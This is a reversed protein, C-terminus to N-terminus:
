KIKCELIQFIKPHSMSVGKFPIEDRSELLSSLFIPEPYVPTALVRLLLKQQYNLVEKKLRPGDLFQVENAITPQRKM